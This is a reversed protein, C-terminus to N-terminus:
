FTACEEGKRLFEPRWDGGRKDRMPEGCCGSWYLCGPETGFAHDFSADQVIPDCPQGCGTCIATHPNILILKVTEFEKEFIGPGRRTVPALYTPLLGM